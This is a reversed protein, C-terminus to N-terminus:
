ELAAMVLEFELLAAVAEARERLVDRAPRGIRRDIETSFERALRSKSQAMSMRAASIGVKGAGAAPGVIAAVSVLALALPGVLTGSDTAWAVALAALAVGVRRVWRWRSLALPIEPPGPSWSAMVTRTAAGVEAEVDVAMLRSRAEDSVMEGVAELVTRLKASLSVEAAPIVAPVPVEPASSRLIAVASRGAQKGHSELERRVPEVMAEAAGVTADALADSWRQSFGTGGGADIGAAAALVQAAQRCDTALKRDLVVRAEGLGLVAGVAEDIGVPPGNTPDAAAGVVVPTVIGENELTSVLDDVVRKRDDESIRDIQNLVFVFQGAYASLPEIHDRHLSSDGYKEPDMVWILADIQPLLRDVLRRHELRISDIDPLDIIALPAAQDHGVRAEIGLDDLLRVLGPEPNFPIWALPETTVPRQSGTETVVEGAIANLLSSKGSGTGGVLAVLVSEGLFGRRRRIRRAVSGAQEVADPPAVGATTAILRDLADVAAVLDAM